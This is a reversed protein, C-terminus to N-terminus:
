RGYAQSRDANETNLMITGRVDSSRGEVLRGTNEFGSFAAAAERDANETNLEIRTPQASSRGERVFSGTVPQSFSVAARDANDTNLEIASASGATLALAAAIAITRINM